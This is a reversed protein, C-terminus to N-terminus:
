IEVLCYFFFFFFLVSCIKTRRQFSHSTIFAQVSREGQSDAQFCYVLLSNYKSATEGDIVSHMVYQRSVFYTLAECSCLAGGWDREVM